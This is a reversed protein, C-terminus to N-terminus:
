LCSFCIIRHLNFYDLSTLLYILNIVIAFYQEM